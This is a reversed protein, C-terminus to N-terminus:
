RVGQPEFTVIGGEAKMLEQVLTDTRERYMMFDIRNSQVWAGKKSKVFRMRPISIIAEQGTSKDKVAKQMPEEEYLLWYNPFHVMGNTIAKTVWKDPTEETRVFGMGVPSLIQYYEGPGDVMVPKPPETKAAEEKAEPTEEPNSILRQKELDTCPTIMSTAGVMTRHMFGFNEAEEMVKHADKIGDKTIKNLFDVTPVSTASAEQIMTKLIDRIGALEIITM